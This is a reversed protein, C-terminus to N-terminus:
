QVCGDGAARAYALLEADAPDTCAIFVRIAADVAGRDLHAGNHGIGHLAALQVERCPMGLMEHLVAWLADRWRPEHSAHRFTPWADFWMFSVTALRGSAQGIPQHVSALRVAICDRWLRPMAKVMAMAEDIPVSPDIAAYPVDSVANSMLYNLGMGLQDDSYRALDTGANAFLRAQLRTWELPTADFAPEDIDWYWEDEGDAPVPRDFLFHLARAYLSPSLTAAEPPKTVIATHVLTASGAM